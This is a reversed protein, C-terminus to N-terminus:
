DLNEFINFQANLIICKNVFTLKTCFTMADIKSNFNKYTIFYDTGIQSNISFIFLQDVSLIESKLDLLNELFIELKKYDVSSFLQITYKLDSIYDNNNVESFITENNISKKDIFKVKEGEKDDPIIYYINKNLNPIIFYKQNTVLYYAISYSFIVLLILLIIFNFKNYKKSIFLYKKM